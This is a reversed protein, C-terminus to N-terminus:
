WGFVSFDDKYVMNIWDKENRWFDEFWPPIAQRLHNLSFTMNKEVGFGYQYCWSLMFSTNCLDRHYCTSANKLEYFMRDPSVRAANWAAQIWGKGWSGVPSLDNIYVWNEEIPHSFDVYWDLHMVDYPPGVRYTNAGIRKFEDTRPFVHFTTDITWLAYPVGDFWQMSDRYLLRAETSMVRSRLPYGHPIGWPRLHPGAACGTHEAIKVYASLARQDTGEFCIDADTVAFWGARRKQKYQDKVAVNFNATLEDMSAVKKLTYIASVHDEQAIEELLSLCRPHDTGNDVIVLEYPDQLVRYSDITRRLTELRNYTALFVTIM